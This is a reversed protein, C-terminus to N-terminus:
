CATIRYSLAQGFLGGSSRAGRAKTLRQPAGPAPVDAELRM